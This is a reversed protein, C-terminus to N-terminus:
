RCSQDAKAVKDPPNVPVPISRAERGTINLIISKAVETSIWPYKTCEHSARRSYDNDEFALNGPYFYWSDAHAKLYEWVPEPTEGVIGLYWASRYAIRNPGLHQGIMLMKDGYWTDEAVGSVFYLLSAPYAGWAISDAQEEPEGLVYGNFRATAGANAIVLTRFDGQNIAPVIMNVSDISQGKEHLVELLHATPISGASHSITHITFGPNGKRHDILGKVLKYGASHESFCERAHQKVTAWHDAAINRISIGYFELVRFVEEEFTPVIQHSSGLSYRALARVIGIAIRVQTFVGKDFDAGKENVVAAELNESVTRFDRDAEILSRGVGEAFEDDKLIAAYEDRKEDFSKMGFHKENKERALAPDLYFMSREALDAEFRDRAKKTSKGALEEDPLKKKFRALGQEFNEDEYIRKVTKLMNEWQLLGADYNVFVPYHNKLNEQEFISELLMPGLEEKVYKQSSLGGHFYLIAGTTQSSETIANLIHEVQLNSASLCALHHDSLAPTGGADPINGRDGTRINGHNCATVIFVVAISYLVKM